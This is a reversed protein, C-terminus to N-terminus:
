SWDITKFLCFCKWLMVLYSTQLDTFRSGHFRENRKAGTQTYRVFQEIWYLTAESSRYYKVLKGQINIQKLFGIKRNLQAFAGTMDRHCYLIITVDLQDWWVSLLVSPIFLKGHKLFWINYFINQSLFSIYVLTITSWEKNTNM